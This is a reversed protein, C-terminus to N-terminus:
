DAPQAVGCGFTGDKAVVLFVPQGNYEDPCEISLPPLVKVPVNDDDSSKKKKPSKKPKPKKPASDLVSMANETTTPGKKIKTKIKKLLQKATGDFKEILYKIDKDKSKALGDSAEKLDKKRGYKVRIKKVARVVADKDITM